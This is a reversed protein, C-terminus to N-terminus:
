GRIKVAVLVRIVQPGPAGKRRLVVLMLRVIAAYAAVGTGAMIPRWIWPWQMRRGIFAWDDRNVIPQDILQAAFWFLSIAGFLTLFLRAIASQIKFLLLLLIAAMGGALSGISGGADTM